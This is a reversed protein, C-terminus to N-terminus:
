ITHIETEKVRTMFRGKRGVEKQGKKKEEEEEKRKLDLFSAVTWIRQKLAQWGLSMPQM